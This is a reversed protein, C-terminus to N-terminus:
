LKDKICMLYGQNGFPSFFLKKPKKITRYGHKKFKNIWWKETQVNVHAPDDIASPGREEVAIIHIMKGKSVRGWENICADIQNSPIHELVERSVVLDFYNDPYNLKATTKVLFCNDPSISNRIAEENVDVGIARYGNKNFQEVLIGVGCGIDLVKDNNKIKAPNAMIYTAIYGYYRKIFFGFFSNIKRLHNNLYYSKDYKEDKNMYFTSIKKLISM